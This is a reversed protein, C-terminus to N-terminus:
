SGVVCLARVDKATISVVSQVTPRDGSMGVMFMQDEGFPTGSWFFRGSLKLKQSVRCVADGCSSYLAGSEDHIAKLEDRTPLRAKAAECYKRASEWDTDGGNDSAKWLIGTQTDRVTGNKEEKFRKWLDAVVFDITSCGSAVLRVERVAEKGDPATCEYSQEEGPVMFEQPKNAALTGLAEGNVSLKCPADSSVTAIVQGIQAVSACRDDVAGEQARLAAPCVLTGILLMRCVNKSRMTDIGRLNLQRIM